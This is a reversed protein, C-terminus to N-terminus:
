RASYRERGGQPLASPQPCSKQLRQVAQLFGVCLLHMVLDVAGCGGKGERTDFWQRDTVILEHVHAGVTVHWRMSNAHRRPQYSADAKHEICLQDLVEDLNLSRLRKLEAEPIYRRSM